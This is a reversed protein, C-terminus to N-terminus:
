GAPRRATRAVDLLVSRVNTEPGIVLRRVDYVSDSTQVLGARTTIAHSYGAAGAQEITAADIDAPQGNPYALLEIPRDLEAELCSRSDILQRALECSGERSLIAHTSTHSGIDFGAALVRRAQDWGMFLSEVRPPVRGNALTAVLDDVAARRTGMDMTKVSTEVAVRSANSEAPSTLSLRNGQWTVCDHTTTAFVWALDEWWAAATASLFDPVLFFTAPLGHARLREIGVTVNDLYGDDFTLAVARRPLSRGAALHSLAQGLPLVNTWRRLWRLQRDFRDLSRPTGSFAWTPTINHWGLVLLSRTM